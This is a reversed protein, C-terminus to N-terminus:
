IKVLLKLLKKKKPTENLYSMNEQHFFQFFNSSGKGLGILKLYLQFFHEHTTKNIQM